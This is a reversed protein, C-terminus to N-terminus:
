NNHGTRASSCSARTKLLTEKKVCTRKREKYEEKMQKTKSHGRTTVWMFAIEKLLSRRTSEDEITSPCATAWLDKIEKEDCLWSLNEKKVKEIGKGKKQLVTTLEENVTLELAVFLSYVNDNVHYLGGRDALVTWERSRDQSVPESPSQLQSLKGAMEKLAKACQQAEEGKQKTYRTQLKRIIFGATYRVANAEVFTLNRGEKAQSTCVDADATSTPKLADMIHGIFEKEMFLQWFAVHAKVHLADDCNQCM